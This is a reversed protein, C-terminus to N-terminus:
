NDFEQQLTAVLSRMTADVYGAQLTACTWKFQTSEFPLTYTFTSAGGLGTFFSVITELDAEVLAPWTLTVVRGTFNLGDPTRQSYGDGFEARRVKMNIATSTGESSPAVPPIFTDAAM